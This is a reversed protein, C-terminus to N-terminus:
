LCKVFAKNPKCQLIKAKILGASLASEHETYSLVRSRWVEVKSTDPSFGMRLM